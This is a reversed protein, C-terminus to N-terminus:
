FGWSINANCEGLERSSVPSCMDGGSFFGPCRGRQQRATRERWDSIHVFYQRIRAHRAYKATFRPPIEESWVAHRLPLSEGRGKFVFALGNTRRIPVSNEWNYQSRKEAM